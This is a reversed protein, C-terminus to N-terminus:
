CSSAWFEIQLPFNGTQPLARTLGPVARKKRNDDGQLRRGGVQAGLKVSNLKLTLDLECRLRKWRAAAVWRKQDPPPASQTFVRSTPKTRRGVRGRRGSPSLFSPTSSLLSSLRDIHVFICTPHGLWSTVSMMNECMYACSKSILSSLSSLSTRFNWLLSTLVNSVVCVGRRFDIKDKDALPVMSWPLLLAPLCSLRVQPRPGWDGCYRSLPVRGHRSHRFEDISWVASPFFSRLPCPQGTQTGTHTHTYTRACSGLLWVTNNALVCRTTARKPRCVLAFLRVVCALPPNNQERKCCTLRLFFDSIQIACTQVAVSGTERKSLAGHTLITSCGCTEAVLWLLLVCFVLFSM